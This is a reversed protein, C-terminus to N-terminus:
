VKCWFLSHDSNLPRSGTQDVVDKHIGTFCNCRLLISLLDILHVLFQLAQQQYQDFLIPWIRRWLVQHMDCLWYKLLQIFQAVFNQRM